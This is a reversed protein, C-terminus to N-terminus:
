VVVLLNTFGDVAESWRGAALHVDAELRSWAPTEDGILRSPSTGLQGAFFNLAAMSPRVLGNELASVYAKTYRDGALQQQTLSANLRAKKLRSGIRDALAANAAAAEDTVQRPRRTSTRM